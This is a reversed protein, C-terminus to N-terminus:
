QSMQACTCKNHRAHPLADVKIVSHPLDFTLVRVSVCLDWKVHLRLFTVVYM